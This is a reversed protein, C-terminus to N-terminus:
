PLRPTANVRIVASGLQKVTLRSIASVRVQRQGLKSSRVSFTPSERWTTGDSSVELAFNFARPAAEHHFYSVVPQGRRNISFTDVERIDLAHPDLQFVYETRNNNDDGDPNADPDVEEPPDGFFQEEWSDALGDRDRDELEPVECDAGDAHCVDFHGSTIPDPAGTLTFLSAELSISGNNEAVSRVTLTNGNAMGEQIFAQEVAVRIREACAAVPGGQLFCLDPAYYDLTKDRSNVTFSVRVRASEPWTEALTNTLTGTELEGTTCVENSFKLVPAISQTSTAAEVDLSEWVWIGQTQVVDPFGLVFRRTVGRGRSVMVRRPTADDIAGTIQAFLRTGDRTVALARMGISLAGNEGALAVCLDDPNGGFNRGQVTVIADTFLLGEVSDIEPPPPPIQVCIDLLGDSVPAPFALSLRVGGSPDAETEINMDEQNIVGRADFTTAVLEGLADGVAERSTENKLKIRAATLAVKEGNELFAVLSLDILTGAPWDSPGNLVTSLSGGSPNGFFRFEGERPADPSLAQNAPVLESNPTDSIFTWVPDRFELTASADLPARTGAGRTVGISEVVVQNPVKGTKFIVGNGISSTVPLPVLREGIGLLCIDDLNDLPSVDLRGPDGPALMQPPLGVGPVIPPAPPHLVFPAPAETRFIAFLPGVEIADLDVPENTVTLWNGALNRYFRMDLEPILVTDAEEPNDHAKLVSELEPQLHGLTYPDPFTRNIFNGGEQLNVTVPTLRFEGDFVLEIPNPIARVFFFGQSIPFAFDGAPQNNSAFLWGQDPHFFINRFELESDQVQILDAVLPDPDSHIGMENNPGFIDDITWVPAFEDVLAGEPFVVIGLPVAENPGVQVSQEEASGPILTFGLLVSAVASHVPSNM